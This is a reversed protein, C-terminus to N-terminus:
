MDGSCARPCSRAVAQTQIVDEVYAHQQIIKLAPYGLLFSSTLQEEHFFWFCVKMWLELANKQSGQLALVDLNKYGRVARM